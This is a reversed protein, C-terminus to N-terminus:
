LSLHRTRNSVLMSLREHKASKLSGLVNGKMWGSRLQGSDISEGHQVAGYGREIKGPDGHWARCGPEQEHPLSIAQGVLEGRNPLARGSREQKIM